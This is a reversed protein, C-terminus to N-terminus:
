YSNRFEDLTLKKQHSKLIADGHACPLGKFNVEDPNSRAFSECHRM